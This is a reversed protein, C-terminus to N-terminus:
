IFGFDLSLGTNIQLNSTTNRNYDGLNQLVTHNYNQDQNVQTNTPGYVAVPMGNVYEPIYRPHTLLLNYAKEDSSGGVKVLPKNKDGYDGSIQLSAKIWKKLTVDVGARYNWRNYDLRGINGDQDFYGINAYYNAKETAGSVGVSHKMTFGTKWNEDLLDYNLGRMAALEDAQFLGTRHNLTTNTPDAAAMANYLRGYDYSNLMKPRSVADTFGFTGSYSIVPEGIKGKKTTVLIVGNAARSGYVAASADKLVTISEVDNPDLNNFAEAGPNTYVNGVKVDNNYVVGDIVFLPQQVKSGVDGLDRVGRVYMSAPDGPQGDGGVVSLGNVLGSLSSALNGDALDKIQDMPVTAIAGTLHAKKQTGYGVVVVEDLTESDEQLVIPNISFDSITMP